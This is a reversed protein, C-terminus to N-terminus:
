GAYLSHAGPGVMTGIIGAMVECRVLGGRLLLPLLQLLQLLTHPLQLLALGRFQPLQLLALGRLQLLLLLALGHLLQLQLLSLCLLLLLYLLLLLLHPLQADRGPQPHGALLHEGLLRGHGDDGALAPGLCLADHLLMRSRYERLLHAPHLHLRDLQLVLRAEPWHLRGPVGDGEVVPVLQGGVQLLQLLVPHDLLDVRGLRDVADEVEGYRLLLGLAGDAHVDVGPGDVLAGLVGPVMHGRGLLHSVPQLAGLHEALEVHPVAEHLQGEGGGALHHELRVAAQVPHLAQEKPGGVAGADEVVLHSLGEGSQPAADGDVVVQQHVALIHPLVVPVQGGHQLPGPLAADGELQALGGHAGGLHPPESPHVRRGADGGVRVLDLVDHLRPPRLGRLVHPGQELGGGVVGPVAEVVLLVPAVLLHRGREPLQQLLVGLELPAPLPLLAVLLEEAHHAGAGEQRGVVGAPLGVQHGVGRRAADGGAEVLLVLLPPPHWHVVGAAGHGAVLLAPLALDVPLAQGLHPAHLHEPGVQDPHLEGAPAVVLAENGEVVVQGPWRRHAHGLVPGADSVEGEGVLVQGALLHRAVVGGPVGRGDLPETWPLLLPLQHVLRAVHLHHPHDHRVQRGGERHLHHLVHGLEVRHVLLELCRYPGALLWRVPLQHRVHGDPRLEAHQLLQHAPPLPDDHRVAAVGGLVDQQPVPHDVQGVVGVHAHVGGLPQQPHAEPEGAHVPRHLPRHLAAQGALGRHVGVGPVGELGAPRGLLRPAAEVRVVPPGGPIALVDQDDDVAEGAVRLGDHHPAGRGLGVDVGEGFHEAPM